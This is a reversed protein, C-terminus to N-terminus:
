RKINWIPSMLVGDINNGRTWESVDVNFAPHFEARQLIYQHEGTVNVNETDNLAVVGAIIYAKKGQITTSTERLFIQGFM